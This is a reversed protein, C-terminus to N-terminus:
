PLCRYVPEYAPPETLYWVPRWDVIVPAACPPKSHPMLAFVLGGVAMVIALALLISVTIDKIM